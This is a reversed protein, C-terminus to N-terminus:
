KVFGRKIAEKAAGSIGYSNQLDSIKQEQETLAERNLIKTQVLKSLENATKELESKKM